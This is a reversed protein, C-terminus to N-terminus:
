IYKLTKLLKILENAEQEAWTIIEEEHTDWQYNFLKISMHMTEHMIVTHIEDNSYNNQLCGINLFIFPNLKRDQLKDKPHYNSLGDIYSHGEDIRKKCSEIDLGHMSKVHYAYFIQKADRGLILDYKNRDIKVYTVPIRRFKYEIMYYSTAMLIAVITVLIIIKM